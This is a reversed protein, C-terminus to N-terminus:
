SISSYRNGKVKKWNINMIIIAAIILAIGLWQTTNVDENLLVYAMMVSVPLELASVISRLGIGTLPFGANMLMPPIITGFLALIIGMKFRLTLLHLKLRLRFTFVIVAGGLVYIFKQQASSINTAVSNATFMTTTFSAAALM